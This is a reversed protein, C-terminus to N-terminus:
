VYELFKRNQLINEGEEYILDSLRTLINEQTNTIGWETEDSLQEASFPKRGQAHEVLFDFARKTSNTERM